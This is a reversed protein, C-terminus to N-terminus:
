TMTVISVDNNYMGLKSASEQTMKICAPPPINLPPGTPPPASITIPIGFKVETPTEVGEHSKTTIKPARIIANPAPKILGTQAKELVQQRFTDATTTSPQSGAGGPPPRIPINPPSVSRPPPNGGAGGSVSLDAEQMTSPDVIRIAKLPKRVSSGGGGGGGGAGGVGRQMGTYNSVAPQQQQQQMVAAPMSPAAGLSIPGMTPPLGVYNQLPIRAYQTFGTQAKELVQQRFTDAATTSPQSGAGGPPPRIPINAPSVSRPPPNGGAGGSVSLDAEQMTSPDVIRIAKPPKRVSSGGGGGGGGAGGVGRQMGTYNSVAPQQQQQQMVAAQMSPAAGLGIPGMTPPLGVYNQLPIRAYQTNAAFSPNVQFQPPAATLSPPLSQYSSIQQPTGMSMMVNPPLPPQTSLLPLRGTQGPATPVLQPTPSLSLSVSLTLLSERDGLDARVRVMSYPPQRMLLSQQSTAPVHVM